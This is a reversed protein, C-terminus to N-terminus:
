YIGRAGHLNYKQWPAQGREIQKIRRELDAMDTSNSLYDEVQQKKADAYLWNGIASTIKKLINM